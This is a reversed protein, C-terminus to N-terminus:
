NNKSLAAQTKIAQRCVDALNRDSFIPHYPEDPQYCYNEIFRSISQESRSIQKLHQQESPAFQDFRHTFHEHLDSPKIMSDSKTVSGASQWVDGVIRKKYKQFEPTQWIHMAAAILVIWILLKKFM